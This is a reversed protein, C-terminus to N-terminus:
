KFRELYFSETFRGLVTNLLIRYKPRDASRQGSDLLVWDAAVRYYM